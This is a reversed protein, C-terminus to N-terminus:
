VARLRVHRPFPRRMERRIARLRPRDGRHRHPDSVRPWGTGSRRARGQLQLDRRQVRGPDVQGRKFVPQEGAALDIVTLRRHGLGLRPGFWTGEEDPGREAMLSTMKQVLARDIEGRGEPDYVGCFGCMLFSGFPQGCRAARFTIGAAVLEHQSRTEAPWTFTQDELDQDLDTPERPEAPNLLFPNAQPADGAQRVLLSCCAEHKHRPGAPRLGSSGCSM